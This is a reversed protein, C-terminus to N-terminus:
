RLGVSSADRLAIEEKRLAERRAERVAKLYFEQYKWETVWKSTAVEDAIKMARDCGSNEAEKVIAEKQAKSIPWLFYILVPMAVLAIVLLPFFWKSIVTDM